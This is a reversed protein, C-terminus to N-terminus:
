FGFERQGGKNYKLANGSKARNLRRRRWQGSAESVVEVSFAECGEFCAWFYLFLLVFEIIKEPWEKGFVSGSGSIWLECQVV